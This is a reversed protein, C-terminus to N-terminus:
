ETLARITKNFNAANVSENLTVLQDILELSGYYRYSTLAMSLLGPTIDVIRYVIKEKADFVNMATSRLLAYSTRVDSDNAISQIGADSIQENQHKFFENYNDNLGDTASFLDTDTTYDTYAKAEYSNALATLKLHEIMATNNQERQAQAPTVPSSTAVTLPYEILNDWASVLQDVFLPVDLAADYLLTINSRIEQASVVISSINRTVSRYIRNFAAAGETTRDVVSNITDHVTDFLGQLTNVNSEYVAVSLPNTYLSELRNNASDRADGSLKSITPNSPTSPEPTINARSAGFTIEFTFQGIETQVSSVTFTMAKVLMKGYIPHVLKGLGPLQLANELRLRENIADNGHVIATLTFTPPLKGLEEIYREDSGPYEHVVVKKGRRVSENPVLFNVERFSAPHLQDILSM